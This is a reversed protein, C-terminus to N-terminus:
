PGVERETAPVPLLLAGLMERARALRSMVTGIPAATLVSIERYSLEELERLVIAERFPEPLDEITARVMDAERRRMLIAEPTDDDRIEAEAVMAAADHRDAGARDIFCHRVIALLWARAGDGRYTHFGRFARLFAEQVIDEAAVPDRILYRAYGYAADMHPLIIGRFRDSEGSAASSGAAPSGRAEGVDIARHPRFVSRSRAM